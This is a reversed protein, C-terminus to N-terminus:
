THSTTLLDSNVSVDEKSVGTVVYYDYCAWWLGCVSVLIRRPQQYGGM